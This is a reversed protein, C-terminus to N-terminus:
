FVTPIQLCIGKKDKALDARPQYGEKFDNIGGYM